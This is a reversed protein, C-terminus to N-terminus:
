MYSRIVEILNDRAVQNKSSWKPAYLSAAIGFEFSRRDVTDVRLARGSQGPGVAAIAKAPIATSQLEVWKSLATVFHGVLAAGHGGILKLQYQILKNALRVDIPQFLLRQNTLVLLGGVQHIGAEQQLIGEEGVQPPIPMYGRKSSGGFLETM